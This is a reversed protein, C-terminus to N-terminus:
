MLTAHASSSLERLCQKRLADVRNKLRCKATDLDTVPPTPRQDTRWMTFILESHAILLAVAPVAVVSVSSSFMQIADMHRRVADYRQTDPWQELLAEVDQEYHDLTAALQFVISKLAHFQPASM